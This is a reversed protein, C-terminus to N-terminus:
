LKRAEDSLNGSSTVAVVEYVGAELGSITYSYPLSGVSESHVLTNQDDYFDIKLVTMEEPVGIQLSTSFASPNLELGSAADIKLITSYLHTEGEGPSPMPSTFIPDVVVDIQAHAHNIASFQLVSLLVLGMMFPCVQGLNTFFQIRGLMAFLHIIHTDKQCIAM